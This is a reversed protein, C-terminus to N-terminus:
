YLMCLVSPVVMAEIVELLFFFFKLLAGFYLKGTGLVDLDLLFNHMFNVVVVPTNYSKEETFDLLIYTFGLGPKLLGYALTWVWLLNKYILGVVPQIHKQM